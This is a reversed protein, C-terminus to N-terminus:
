QIKSFSEHQLLVAVSRHNSAFHGVYRVIRPDNMSAIEDTGEKVLAIKKELPFDKYSNVIPNRNKGRIMELKEVTILRKDHFSKNLSGALSLLGKKSLDSTYGYVCQNEKLLRLGVGSTITSEATNVKGNEVSLGNASSNEYFIEAYDAGTELAKNLVLIALSKSIM